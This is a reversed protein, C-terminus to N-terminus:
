DDHDEFCTKTGNHCAPGVPKVTALLTDGDCDMSIEVLNLYNGSTEGKLWRSNRSRSWFVLKGIELTEALTEANSWALMLVENSAADQVVVPVLGAENFRVNSLSLERM